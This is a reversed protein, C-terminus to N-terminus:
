AREKYVYSHNKLFVLYEVCKNDKLTCEYIAILCCHDARVNNEQKNKTKLVSIFETAKTFSVYNSLLISEKALRKFYNYFYNKLSWLLKTQLM